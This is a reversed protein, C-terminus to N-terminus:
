RRGATPLGLQRGLRQLRDRFVGAPLTGGRAEHWLQVAAPHYGGARSLRDPERVPDVGTLAWALLEGLLRQDDSPTLCRADSAPDMAALDGAASGNRTGCRDGTAQRRDGGVPRAEGLDLIFAQSTSHELFVNDPRLDGHVWGAAHLSAVADAIRALMPVAQALPLARTRELRRRLTEGDVWRLALWPAGDPCGSSPSTRGTDRLEPIAPHALQRLAERERCLREAAGEVETKALKLAAVGVPGEARYVRSYSGEGVWELVAFEGREGRVWQGPQLIVRSM